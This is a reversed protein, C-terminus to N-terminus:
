FLHSFLSDGTGPNVVIPVDPLFGPPTLDEPDSNTNTNNDPNDVANSVTIKARGIEEGDVTATVVVNGVSLGRVTARAGNTNISIM